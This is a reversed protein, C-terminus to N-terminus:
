KAAKEFHARLSSLVDAAWKEPLDTNGSPTLPLFPRAPITVKKAFIPFGGPHMWRLNKATVPYITAGFQHVAPFKVGGEAQLNTGIEVANGRIRTTISNMLHGTNRLPQGHHRTLASLPAWKAGWPSSGSRFGLQVKTKIKRGVNQMAPTISEGAEILDDLKKKLEQDLLEFTIPKYGAM